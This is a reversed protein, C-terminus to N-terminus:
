FAPPSSILFHSLPPYSLSTSDCGVRIQCQEERCDLSIVRWWLPARSSDIICCASECLHWFGVKNYLGSGEPDALVVHVDEKVSKLFRGIGSITGGTGVLILLILKNKYERERETRCGPHSRLVFSVHLINTAPLYTM